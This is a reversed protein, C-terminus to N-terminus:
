RQKKGFPDKSDVEVMISAFELIFCFNKAEQALLWKWKLIFTDTMVGKAEHIVNTCEKTYMFDVRISAVKIREGGQPQTYLPITVEEQLNRIAGRKEEMLLRAAIKAQLKSPYAGTRKANYKNKWM